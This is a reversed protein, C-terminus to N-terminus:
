FYLAWVLIQGKVRVADTEHLNESVQERISGPVGGVPADDSQRTEGIGTAGHDLDRVIADAYWQVLLRDNELFERLQFVRHTVAAAAPQTDPKGEDLFEHRQVM